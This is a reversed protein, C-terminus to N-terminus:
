VWDLWLTWTNWIRDKGIKEVAYEICHETGGGTGNYLAVLAYCDDVMAINRAKMCWSTYEQTILKRSKAQTLLNLYHEQSERPWRSQQGHCPIYAHFPVGQNTCALAIAQDWGLAMGSIMEADPHKTIIRQVIHDAFSNLRCAAASSYGGLKEPRHGTFAILM